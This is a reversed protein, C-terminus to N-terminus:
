SYTLESIKKHHSALSRRLHAYASESSEFIRHNGSEDIWEIGNQITLLIFSTDDIKVAQWDEPSDFGWEFYIERAIKRGDDESLGLLRGLENVHYDELLEEAKSKLNEYDEPHDNEAVEVELVFEEAHVVKFDEDGTFEDRAIERAHEEDNAHVELFYVQHEIRAYQVKYKPM